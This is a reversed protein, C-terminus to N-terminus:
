TAPVANKAQLAGDPYRVVYWALGIWEYLAYYSRRLNEATPLLHTLTFPARGFFVTPAAVVEMGMREFAMVSRRMHMADTVLLIRRINEKRLIRASFEANQATNESETDLWRVPVGFEERLAREMALAKPKFRGDVTGNGGSALIPLGTERYLRAAYRLRALAIYDPQENGGYEPAAAIRGAALVVIAQAGAGRPDQLAHTLNELPAVLVATGVRSCLLYFVAFTGIVLLRSLRPRRRKMFLGIALVIFLSAPPLLLERIVPLFNITAM